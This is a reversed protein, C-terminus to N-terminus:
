GVTVAILAPRTPAKSGGEPESTVMVRDVGELDSPVVTEGSGDATVSFLAKTPVPAQKGSQLWVQYVRRAGPNPLGSVVLHATGSDDIVLKAQGGAGPATSRASCPARGAAARTAASRSGILAGGAILVLACAAAAALPLPSRLWSRLRSERRAPRAGPAPVHPADARQGGAAAFLEADARVQAMVREKLERPATRTPTVNLLADRALVLEAAESACVPCTAVHDRM